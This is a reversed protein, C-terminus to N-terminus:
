AIDRRRGHRDRFRQRARVTWRHAGYFVLPLVVVPQMMSFIGTGLIPLMPQWPKYAWLGLRHVAVWEIVANIVIGGAVVMVYRVLRPPSFWTADRWAATAVAWLALLILVDGVAAAGCLLVAAALPTSEPAYAPMQLVEEALYVPLGIVAIRAFVRGNM